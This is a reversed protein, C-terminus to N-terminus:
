DSLIFSTLVDCQYEFSIIGSASASYSKEKNGNVTLNYTSNPELGALLFQYEGESHLIWNRSKSWEGIEIRIAQVDMRTVTLEVDNQNGPYYLLSNDQMNVGFSRTNDVTFNRTFIQYNNESLKIHYVEDRLTYNFETGNLEQLMNPELGMRNWMPRIGYIDRYLATITTASGALIDHGIGEQTKRAFRQSSLGDKNYQRLINKIYKLALDKDYQVYSRIGLYGWTPFIDGNEYNPFPWMVPPHVEELKFSEFCLPWHFLNEAKAKNEIQDLVAKIRQPDDCIGFAIAAFNVPTVLNDGHLSGDKDRWYIYQKKEESWFGGEQVPKNFAEKLRSAVSSYYGAKEKDGLVLECDAWLNLAEYMQANVFANEFSAWIVDLWDSCKEEETNNNLMEFIGNNNSDRKILWNLVKECSQKHSELWALDGNQHFQEVTNIVQGPQADITYGWPADYYGTKFNYNSNKAEPVNHWRALVRGDEEIAQDREQDLTSSFNDTYNKDNVAMGIQAFFPEHLCKWNTVWGNAGIINKDIVGYRGTTNLLERVAIADIGVLTGRDYVKEYDVYSLELSIETSGKKVEFPTFVDAKGSVFRNLNYRQGLESPTLYQTFEFEGHEGHSFASAMSGGTKSSAEIRFGDGSVPEWFTVGNTHVGYTDDVEKLYKCWVMGGTNLIGGKWTSLTSFNWVPMAMNELMGTQKYEREINWYIRDNRWTFVWTESVKMHDDGYVINSVEVKNEGVKVKAQKKSELSTYEGTETQISTFVGSPSITNQGKIVIQGIKCGKSYDIQIQLLEADDAILITKTEANHKLDTAQASVAFFLVVLFTINRMM